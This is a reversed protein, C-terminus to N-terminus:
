RPLNIDLSTKSSNKSIHKLYWCSTLLKLFTWWIIHLYQVRQSKTDLDQVLSTRYVNVNGEFNPHRQKKDGCLIMKLYWVMKLRTRTCLSKRHWCFCLVKKRTQSASIRMTSRGGGGIHKQCGAAEIKSARNSNTFRRQFGQTAVCSRALVKKKTLGGPLLQLWFFVPFFFCLLWKQAVFTLCSWIGASIRHGWVARWANRPNSNCTWCQGALNTCFSIM